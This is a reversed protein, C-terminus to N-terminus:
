PAKKLQAIETQYFKLQNEMKRVKDRLEEKEKQLNAVRFILEAHESTTVIAETSAQARKDRSGSGSDNLPRPETGDHQTLNRRSELKLQRRLDRILAAQKKESLRATVSADEVTQKFAELQSRFDSETSAFKALADDRKQVAQRLEAELASSKAELDAIKKSLAANTAHFFKNDGESKEFQLKIDNYVELDKNLSAIKAVQLAIRATLEAEVEQIKTTHTQEIAQLEAKHSNITDASERVLKNIEARSSDLLKKLDQIEVDKQKTVDGSSAIDGEQKKLRATARNYEGELAELKCEVEEVRDQSERVKAESTQQLQSLRQQLEMVSAQAQQLERSKTQLTKIDGNSSQLDAELDSNLRQLIQVEQERATLQGRLDLLQAEHSASTDLQEQKLADLTNEATSLEVRLSDLQSTATLLSQEKADLLDKLSSAHENAANLAREVEEVQSARKALESTLEAEKDALAKSHAEASETLEQRLKEVEAQTAALTGTLDVISADKEQAALAAQTQSEAATAAQAKLETLEAEKTALMAQAEELRDLSQQKAESLESVKSSLSAVEASLTDAKSTLESHQSLSPQTARMQEQVSALRSEATEKERRSLELLQRSEALQAQLTQHVDTLAAVKKASDALSSELKSISEKATAVMSHNSAVEGQAAQLRGELQEARARQASLEVGLRDIVPSNEKLKQESSEAKHSTGAVLPQAPVPAQSVIELLHKIFASSLKDTEQSSSDQPASQFNAFSEMHGGQPAPSDLSILSDSPPPRQPARPASPAFFDLDLRAPAASQSLAGAAPATSRRLGAAFGAVAQKLQSELQTHKQGADASPAAQSSLQMIKARLEHTDHDYQTQLKTFKERWAAVGEADHSQTPAHSPAHAAAHVHAHAPLPPTASRPASEKLRKLESTLRDNTATSETLLHSIRAQQERMSEITSEYDDIMEQVETAKKSKALAKTAKTLEKNLRECQKQVQDLGYEARKAREEVAHKDARLTALAEQQKRFDDLSLAM